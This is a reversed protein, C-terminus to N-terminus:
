MEMKPRKVDDKVMSHLILICERYLLTCLM